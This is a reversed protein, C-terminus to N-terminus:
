VVASCVFFPLLLSSSLFFPPVSNHHYNIVLTHLTYVCM